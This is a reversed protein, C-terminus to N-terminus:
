LLQYHEDSAAIRVLPIFEQTLAEDELLANGATEADDDDTDPSASDSHELFILWCGRIGSLLDELLDPGPRAPDLPTPRIDAVLSEGLDSDEGAEDQAEAALGALTLLDPIKGEAVLMADSILGLVASRPPEGEALLDLVITPTQWPLAEIDDATRVVETVGLGSREGAVVAAAWLWHAAAVAAAAPDFETLLRGSSMLDEHLLRDAAAIQVPSVDQRTLMVAQRARGSLDGREAREVAALEVEIDTVLCGTLREDGIAHLARGLQHAPEKVLGYERVVTGDRPLNPERLAGAVSSFSERSRQRHWGESNVEVGGAASAPHTYCRWLAESLGGAAWAVELADGSDVPGAVDAVTVAVDGRGTSWSAALVRRAEDFAYYTMWVVGIRCLLAFM